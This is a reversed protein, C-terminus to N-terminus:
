NGSVRSADNKNAEFAAMVAEEGALGNSEASTIADLMRQYDKPMVKVFRLSSSAWTDLIQQAQTSGTHQVHKQLLSQLEQLDGESLMELSVTELNCHNRFTGNVDLVYAIGGSMGAAFNRGTEGLVVVRGGTM